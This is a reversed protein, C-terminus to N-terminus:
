MIRSLMRVRGAGLRVRASAVGWDAADSAGRAGQAQAAAHARAVENRVSGIRTGGRTHREVPM